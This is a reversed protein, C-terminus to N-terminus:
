RRPTTVSQGSMVSIISSRQRRRSLVAHKLENGGLGHEHTDMAASSDDPIRIDNGTLWLVLLVAVTVIVSWVTTFLVGLAQVGLLGAGGGYVLGIAAGQPAGPITAEEAFVGVLLTGVIGGVLHVPFVGVADDVRLAEFIISSGLGALAGLVGIVASAWPAVSACGATIAVLATLLGNVGDFVDVTTRRTRWYSWFVGTMFGFSSAIITSAAAKGALLRGGDTLQGSSGANFSFWAYWLTLSGLLAQIPRSRDPLYTGDGKFVHARPRLWLSVGLGFVAGSLHVVCSGAFDVFGM